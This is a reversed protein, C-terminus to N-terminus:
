KRTLAVWLSPGFMLVGYIAGVTAALFYPNLGLAAAVKFGLTPIAHTGLVFALALAALLLMAWRFAFDERRM